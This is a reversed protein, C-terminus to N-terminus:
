PLILHGTRREKKRKIEVTYNAKKKFLHSNINIKSNNKNDHFIM